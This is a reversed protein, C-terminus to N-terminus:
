ALRRCEPQSRRHAGTIVRRVLLMLLFYMSINNYMCQRMEKSGKKTITIQELVAATM